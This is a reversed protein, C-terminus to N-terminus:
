FSLIRELDEVSYILSTNREVGINKFYIPDGAIRIKKNKFHASLENLYQQTSDNTDKHTLFLLLNDPSSVKVAEKVSRLPVNAGLYVSKHGAIRIMFHSFLLGIEHFENEPLFLMWSDSAEKAAPFSDIVTFLKQRIINSIFHEAAPQILDTTWMIGVRKLMPYIIEIYTNRMGYKLLCHSFIKDFNMEDYNMGASILQLIFYEAKNKKFDKGSIEEILKFLKQDPMVSLESVKYGGNILSVINLLRRLQDNDYYRTNGDSRNPTLADYRQEWIRITHPKIGSLRSLQSISFLNM